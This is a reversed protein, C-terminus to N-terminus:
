RYDRPARKQGLVLARGLVHVLREGIFWGGIKRFTGKFFTPRPRIHLDVELILDVEL